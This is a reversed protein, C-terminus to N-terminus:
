RQFSPLSQWFAPSKLYQQDFQQEMAEFLYYTEPPPLLQHHIQLVRLERIHQFRTTKWSKRFAMDNEFRLYAPFWQGEREQYVVELRNFISKQNKNEQWLTYGMRVIAADEARIYLEGDAWFRATRSEQRLIQLYPHRDNAQVSVVYVSQGQWTIARDIELSHQLLFSPNLEYGTEISSSRLYNRIPNNFLLVAMPHSGVLSLHGSRGGINNEYHEGFHIPYGESWRKQYIKVQM